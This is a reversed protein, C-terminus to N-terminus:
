KESALGAEKLWSLALLRRREKEPDESKRRFLSRFANRVDPLTAMRGFWDRNKKLSDLSFHGSLYGDAVLALAEEDPFLDSLLLGPCGSERGRDIKTLLPKSFYAEWEMGMLVSRAVSFSNFSSFSLSPYERFDHDTIINSAVLPWRSNKPDIEGLRSVACYRHVIDAGRDAATEWLRAPYEPDYKKLIDHFFSAKSLTEHDRVTLYSGKTPFALPYLDKRVEPHTPALATNYREIRHLDNNKKADALKSELMPDIWFRVSNMEAIMASPDGVGMNYQHDLLTARIYQAGFFPLACSLALVFLSFVLRARHSRAAAKITRRELPTWKDRRTLALISLWETFSPLSQRRPNAGWSQAATALLIQARGRRTQRQKRTLWDRLPHVLYDHALQYYQGSTPAATDDNSFGDPDTPTILRLESDLIRILGDFERPRKAYGSAELLDQRSIMQGKIDTGIEPLLAKLVAQAAKQHLRHEPPATSAGFTEELFTVGVGTTGGVDELTSRIWAKSKMM